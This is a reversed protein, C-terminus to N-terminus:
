SGPQSASVRQRWGQKRRRRAGRVGGEDGSGTAALDDGSGNGGGAPADRLQAAAHASEGEQHLGVGAGCSPNRVHKRADTVDVSVMASACAGETM